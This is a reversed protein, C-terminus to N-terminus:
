RAAGRERAVEDHRGLRDATVQELDGDHVHGALADVGPRSRQQQGAREAAQEARQRLLLEQGCRVLVQHALLPALAERRRDMEGDVQVVADNSARVAPWGGASCNWAPDPRQTTCQVSPGTSPQDVARVERRM